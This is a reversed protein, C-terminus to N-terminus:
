LGTIFGSSVGRIARHNRATAAWAKLLFNNAEQGSVESYFGGDGWEDEPLKLWFGKKRFRVQKRASGKGRWEVGTAPAGGSAWRTNSMIPGTTGKLVYMTHPASSSIHGEVQREGVQQTGGSIGERLEGTREPAYHKAHEVFHGTVLTMWKGVLGTPRYLHQDFIVVKTFGAM